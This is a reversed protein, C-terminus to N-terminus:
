VAWSGRAFGGGFGGTALGGWFCLFVISRLGVLIVM